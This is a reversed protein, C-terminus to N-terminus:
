LVKEVDKIWALGADRVIAPMWSLEGMMWYILRVSDIVGGGSLDLGDLWQVFEAVHEVGWMEAKLDNILPRPQRAHFGMPLGHHVYMGNDQMVRRMILSAFIDTNRGQGNYFQAFAPAFERRFATLQSNFVSYAHPHVVFGTRLIDSISHVMPRTAIATTASTDPVGLIIGQAAGIGAGAVWTPAHNLSEGIPLGRASAPPVTLLGHDVWAGPAGLCLGFYSHEFLHIFNDFFGWGLGIMDDDISIILDAGEKLAELVAINRRSDTGWGIVESHLYGDGMVYHCNPLNDCFEKTEPPTKKDGAVFMSFEHPPHPAARAYLALVTPINITTTVLSVRMLITREKKRKAARALSGL